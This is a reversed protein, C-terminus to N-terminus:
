GAAHRVFDEDVTIGLGPGDPVSMRGAAFAFPESALQTRMPNDFRDVELLPSDPGVLESPEPILSIAQLTAALLVAGGWAHPVCQRGRLAALDAVFLLEGIGGCIAVDPQVIDVATRNLFADFAGRTELGEAAAIAIDLGGLHEYGPYTLGGRHRILPEELWRFRLEALARAVERARPVAYAGNADVMLDVEDGVLRRVDALIPLERTPAFRGIRIKCATFGDRVAASVEDPWSREPDVGEVYGGSSAYGRVSDRRRGGYLASVSVGLRRARLDDLAIAIASLALQDATAIRLEDILTRIDTADRGVLLEGIEEITAAVGARAYTEGWGDLGDGDRLRVLISRRERYTAGSPGAAATVPQCLRFVEVRQIAM